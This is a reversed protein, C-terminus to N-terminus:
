TSLSPDPLILPYQEQHQMTLKLTQHKLFGPVYATLGLISVAGYVRNDFPAHYYGASAAFGIRPLIERAGKRLYSTAYLNYYLYHTGARYDGEEEIYQLERRYRYDIRPQILTLFKGTNLRFPIYSQATFTLDYPLMMATDAEEHMLLVDPEGGYDFYFNFVPYRGKLQIGSHFMHYGNKYEYGIQSVVTSLQNQSILSVGLSIPLNEPSLALHPNLYDIYAPLWSHVNFLHGIKLYPKVPYVVSDQGEAQAMELLVETNLDYDLQETHDSVETLSKGTGDKLSLEAIKYGDATYNSYFLKKEDASIYPQFAGFRSSTVQFIEKTSINFSYINDIGSFTACFFISEGAVVPNSIDEDEVKVLLEWSGSGPQYRVLSKSEKESRILVISSDGEMWAPHQIFRNGPSPVRLQEKGDIDLVVLSFKQLDSQEVVAIRSGDNSVAPSYFRTKKGLRKTKGTAIEFSRLVSYNRNSWRTDPVFEDWVVHTDSVSVRGSSLYGPRFISKEKGERDMLIFEPIQDLGSKYVFLLSDSIVQPYSYSTYQESERARGSNGWPTYPTLVRASDTGSWHLGYEEMANQYFQKKSSLGYKRMSILTPDLLFPKRAAYNQFDIWISDGYNRRGHRVMLYGLQYHDPIYNKYSGMTAKSFSYTRGAELMQAKLEMEFSPQRGRGSTSLRTESDVADGELYWPPLFIAMAGVMQQGGLYYLAKTFGQDLKDIQVAHRGEHIALQTLWDQNYGNPDPNTFIELRKPAWVFVGNSFSSENHVIVPMQSHNHDLARGLYPYYFEIRNAFAEALSDVGEPFIVHYNPTKFQYWRLKGADQGYEYFQGYLLAPIFLLLIFAM